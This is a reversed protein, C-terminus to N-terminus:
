KHCTYGRKSSLWFYKFLCGSINFYIPWIFNLFIIEDFFDSTKAFDCFMAEHKKLSFPRRFANQQPLVCVKWTYNKLATKIINLIQIIYIIIKNQLFAKNWQSNGMIKHIKTKWIFNLFNCLKMHKHIMHFVLICFYYPFKWDFLVNRWIDIIM